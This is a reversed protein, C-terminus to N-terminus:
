GYKDLECIVYTAATHATASLGQFGTQVVVYEHYIIGCM